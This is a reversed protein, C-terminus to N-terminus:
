FLYFIHGGFKLTPYKVHTHYAFLYTQCIQKRRQLCFTIMTMPSFWLM